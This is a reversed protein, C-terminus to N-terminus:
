QQWFDPIFKSGGKDPLDSLDREPHYYAEGKGYDYTYWYSRTTCSSVEFLGLVIKDPNSICKVNGQVQVAIPDFLKGQFSLQKNLEQYYVSSTQNLAYLRTQLIKGGPGGPQRIPITCIYRGTEVYGCTDPTYGLPFAASDFSFFCVSSNIIKQLSLTHTKVTLNVNTKLDFREWCYILYPCVAGSCNKPPPFPIGAEKMEPTYLNYYSYCNIIFNDYRFQYISDSNYGIDIFTEAGYDMKSAINGLQDLYWFEKNTTIGHISDITAPQLLKQTASEYIDGNPMEIHLAYSRGTVAVFETPDSYYYKLSTEEHMQYVNGLDDQILVRAGPIGNTNM